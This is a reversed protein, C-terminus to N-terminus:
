LASWGGKAAGVSVQMGAAHRLEHLGHLSYRLLPCLNSLTCRKCIPGEHVVLKTSATQNLFNCCENAKKAHIHCHQNLASSTNCGRIHGQASGSALRTWVRIMCNSTVPRGPQKKDQGARGEVPSRRDVRCQRIMLIARQKPQLCLLRHQHRRRKSLQIGQHVM